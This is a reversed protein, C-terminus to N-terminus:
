LGSQRTDARIPEELREGERGRGWDARWGYGNVWGFLWKWFLRLRLIRVKEEPSYPRRTKKETPPPQVAAM